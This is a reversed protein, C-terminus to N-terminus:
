GSVVTTRFSATMWSGSIGLNRYAPTPFGYDRLEWTKRADLKRNLYGHLEALWEENTM